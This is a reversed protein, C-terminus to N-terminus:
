PAISITPSNTSSVNGNVIVNLPLDGQPLGAPLVVIIYTASLGFVGTVPGVNEVTLQTVGATVRVVNPNPQFQTALGLSSTFLIVRTPQTATSLYNTTTRFPGGVLTLSDLVVARTVNGDEVFITAPTTATVCASFESTNNNPDTATATISPGTISANPVVINFTGTSCTGDTTVTTSGLFTQGEGNGSADCTTNSFFEIRFQTAATSNLTGSITTTTAGTVASTIVPFNQINNSGADADCNDNATVGDTELDIGLNL